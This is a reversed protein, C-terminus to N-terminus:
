YQMVFIAHYIMIKAHFVGADTFNTNAFYSAYNKQQQQQLAIKIWEGWMFSVMKIEKIWLPITQITDLM